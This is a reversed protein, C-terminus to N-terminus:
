GMPLERDVRALASNLENTLPVNRLGNLEHWEVTKRAAEALESIAPLQLTFPGICRYGGKEASRIYKRAERESRFSHLYQENSTGGFQIVVQLEIVQVPKSMLAIGASVNTGQLCKRM